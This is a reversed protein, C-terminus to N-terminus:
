GVDSTSGSERRADLFAPRDHQDQLEFGVRRSVSCKQIQAPATTWEQIRAAHDSVKNESMWLMWWPHPTRTSLAEDGSIDRLDVPFAAAAMRSGRFASLAPGSEFPMTNGFATWLSECVSLSWSQALLIERAVLSKWEDPVADAAGSILANVLAEEEIREALTGLGNFMAVARLNALQRVRSINALIPLRNM